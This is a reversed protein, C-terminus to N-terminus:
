PVSGGMREGFSESASDAGPAGGQADERDSGAALRSLNFNALESLAENHMERSIAKAEQPSCGAIRMPLKDDIALIRNRVAGFLASLAREVPERPLLEGRTKANEMEQAEAQAKVLRARSARVSEDALGGDAAV